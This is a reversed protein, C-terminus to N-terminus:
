GTAIKIEGNILSPNEFSNLNQILDVNDLNGYYKYTLTLLSENVVDVSTVKLVQLTENEVFQNFSVRQDQLLAFIDSDILPLQFVKDYQNYLVSSIKELEEDTAYEIETAANVALILATSQTLTRVSDQNQSVGALERTTPEVDPDDDGFNFLGTFYLYTGFPNDISIGVTTLLDNIINGYGSNIVTNIDGAISKALKAVNNLDNVTTIFPAARKKIDAVLEDTKEQIYNLEKKLTGTISDDVVSGIEDKADNGKKVVDTNVGNSAPLFQKQDIVTFSMDFITAGLEAISERMTYTGTLQVTLEGRTPHVLIGTGKSELAKEMADRRTFYNQTILRATDIFGLLNLGSAIFDAIVSTGTGSIIIRMGIVLPQRGLDESIVIDSNPFTHIVSKRGSSKSTDLFDFEIGRYKGKLLQNKIM